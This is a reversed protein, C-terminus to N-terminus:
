PLVGLDILTLNKAIYEAKGEKKTFAEIKIQIRDFPMTQFSSVLPQDQRLEGVMSALEVWEDRNIKFYIQLFDNKDMKGTSALTASIEVLNSTPGSDIENSIFRCFRGSCYFNLAGARYDNRFEYPLPYVNRLPVVLEAPAPQDVIKRECMDYWQDPIMELYPSDKLNCTKSDACNYVAVISKKDKDGIVKFYKGKVVISTDESVGIGLLHPHLSIVEYIDEWRDREDVHVDFAVGRVFGFGYRHWLRNAIFINSGDQDGRPMFFGSVTCGASTGSIICDRELCDWMEDLTRTYKYSDTLRWQRGGRMFIGTTTKLPAVFEETDAQAADEVGTYDPDEDDPHMITFKQPNFPNRVTWREAYEVEEDKITKMVDSVSM